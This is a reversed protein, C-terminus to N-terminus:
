PTIQRERCYTEWVRLAVNRLAATAEMTQTVQQRLKGQDATKHKAMAPRLMLMDAKPLFARGLQGLNKRPPEYENKADERLVEELQADSSPTYTADPSSLPFHSHAGSQAGERRDPQTRETGQPASDTRGEPAESAADIEPFTDRYLGLAAAGDFLHAM